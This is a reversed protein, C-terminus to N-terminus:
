RTTAAATATASGAAAAATTTATSSTSCQMAAPSGKLWCCGTVQADVMFRLVFPINAEFATSPLTLAEGGGAAGGFGEPLRLRIGSEIFSRISGILQPSAATVRFFFQHLKSPSYYM